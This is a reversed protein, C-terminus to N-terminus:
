GAMQDALMVIGNIFAAKSLTHTIDGSAFTRRGIYGGAAVKAAFSKIEQDAASKDHPREAGDSDVIPQGHDDLGHKRRIAKIQGLCWVRFAAISGGEWLMEGPEEKLTPLSTGGSSSGIVIGHSAQPVVAGGHALVLAGKNKHKKGM